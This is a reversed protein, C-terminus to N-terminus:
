TNLFVKHARLNVNQILHPINILFTMILSVM